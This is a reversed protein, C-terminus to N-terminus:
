GLPCVPSHISKRLPHIATQKYQLEYKQYKAYLCVFIICNSFKTHRKRQFGVTCSLLHLLSPSIWGQLIGSYDEHVMIYGSQQPHTFLKEALHFYFSLGLFKLFSCYDLDFIKPYFKLVEKFFNFIVSICFSTQERALLSM